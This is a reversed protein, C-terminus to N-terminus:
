EYSIEFNATASFNGVGIKNQALASPEARVHAQFPIINIGGKSSYKLDTQEGLKLLTGNENTIGIAAGSAQSDPSFALYGDLGNSAIGTYKIKAKQLVESPCDEVTLTFDQSPMSGKLLDRNSIDGFNVDKDNIACAPAVVTLTIKVEKRLADGAAYASQQSGIALLLLAPLAYAKLSHSKLAETKLLETKLLYSSLKM